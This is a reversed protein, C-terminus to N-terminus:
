CMGFPQPPPSLGGRRGGAEGLQRGLYAPRDFDSCTLSEVVTFGTNFVVQIDMSLGGTDLSWRDICTFM